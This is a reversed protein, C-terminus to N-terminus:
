NFTWGVKTILIFPKYLFMALAIPWYEIAIMLVYFNHELWSFEWQIANSTSSTIQIFLNFPWFIPVLHLILGWPAIFNIISLYAPSELPDSQCFIIDSHIGNYYSWLFRCCRKSQTLNIAPWILVLGPACIILTNGSAPLKLIILAAAANYSSSMWNMSMISTISHNNARATLHGASKKTAQIYQTAVPLELPSFIPYEGLM